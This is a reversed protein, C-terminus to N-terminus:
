GRPRLASYRAGQQPGSHAPGQPYHEGHDGSQLLPSVSFGTIGFAMLLPIMRPDAAAEGCITVPIGAGRASAIVHGLCRLRYQRGAEGRHPQKLAHECLREYADKPCIKAM